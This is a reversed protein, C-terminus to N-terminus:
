AQLRAGAGLAPLRFAAQKGRVRAWGLLALVAIMLLGVSAPLPVASPAFSMALSFVGLNLPGTASAMIHAFYTGAGVHFSEIDGVPASWSSLVGTASTASFTLQNLPTPWAINQLSATVMGDTPATFSFVASQTGYVMTTDSLLMTEARVHPAVALCVLSMCALWGLQVTNGV